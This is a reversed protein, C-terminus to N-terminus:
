CAWIQQKVTFLSLPFFLFPFPLYLPSSFFLLHITFFFLIPLSLAGSFSVLWVNLLMCSSSVFACCASVTSLLRLSFELTLLRLFFFLLLSNPHSVLSFLVLSCFFPFSVPVSMDTTEVGRVVFESSLSRGTDDDSHLYVIEHWGHHLVISMLASAEHKYNSSTRLFYPYRDRDTLFNARAAPSIM